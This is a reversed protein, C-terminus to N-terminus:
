GLEEFSFCKLQLLTLTHRRSGGPIDPERDWSRHHWAHIPAIVLQGFRAPEVLVGVERAVELVRQLKQAIYIVGCCNYYTVTSGTISIHLVLLM